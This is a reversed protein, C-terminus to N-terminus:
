VVMLDGRVVSQDPKYGLKYGEPPAQRVAQRLLQMREQMSDPPLKKYPYNALQNNWILGM